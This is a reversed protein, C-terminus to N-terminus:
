YETASGLIGRGKNETSSKLCILHSGDGTAPGIQRTRSWKWVGIYVRNSLLVIGLIIHQGMTVWIATKTIVDEM